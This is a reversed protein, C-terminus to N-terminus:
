SRGLTSSSAVPSMFSAALSSTGNGMIMVGSRHQHHFLKKNIVKENPSDKDELEDEGDDGDDNDVEDLVTDQSLSVDMEKEKKDGRCHRNEDHGGAEDSSSFDPDITETSTNTPSNEYFITTHPTSSTQSHSSSISDNRQGSGVIAPEDVDSFCIGSIRKKQFPEPTIIISNNGSANNHNHQNLAISGLSESTTVTSSSLNLDDGSRMAAWNALHNLNMGPSLLNNKLLTIARAISLSNPSSNNAAACITPSVALFAKALMEMSITMANNHDEFGPTAPLNNPTQEFQNQDGNGVGVSSSLFSANGDLKRRKILPVTPPKCNTTSSANTPDHSSVENTSSGQSGVELLQPIHQIAQM